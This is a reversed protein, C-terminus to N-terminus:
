EKIFKEFLMEEGNILKLLYVGRQLESIDINITATNIIMRKAVIGKSDYIFLSANKLIEDAITLRLYDHAPNPFISISHQESNKTSQRFATSGTNAILSYCQALNFGNSSGNIVIDDLRWNAVNSSATGIGNYGYIRFTVSIGVNASVTLPIPIPACHIGVDSM